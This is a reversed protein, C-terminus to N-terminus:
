DALVPISSSEAKQFQSAVSDPLAEELKRSLWEQLESTHEKSLSVFRVGLHGTKLWCITSEAVFPGKHDPLTFQIQVNEGIKLTVFTSLAMGGASINVGHCRVEPMNRRLVTVPISIPCRFYRRRERLILGYAPKLTSRISQTSLPREFVFESRKRFATGEADNDSIAFTVATRNSLSLHVEDLILGCQEGLQLDVIVADFKRSKLLQISAPVEQCVDPSISFEQLAHSFQRITVPDASVLLALGISVTFYVEYSRKDRNEGAPKHEPTRNPLTAECNTLL